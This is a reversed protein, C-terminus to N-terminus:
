KRGGVTLEDIRSRRYCDQCSSMSAAYFEDRTFSYASGRSKFPLVIPTSVSVLIKMEINAAYTPSFGSFSMLSPRRHRPAFPDRNEGSPLISANMHLGGSDMSSRCFFSPCARTLVVVSLGHDCYEQQIIALVLSKTRLYGTAVFRAIRAMRLPTSRQALSGLRTARKKM